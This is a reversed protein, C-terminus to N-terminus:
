ESFNVALSITKIFYKPFFITRAKQYKKQKISTSILQSKM